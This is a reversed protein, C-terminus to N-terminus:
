QGMEPHVPVNGHNAHKFLDKTFRISQRDRRDSHRPGPLGHQQGGYEEPIPCGFLNLEAMKDVLERQFRHDNEDQEVFPAIENDAFKRVMDRLIIHDESLEVDYQDSM